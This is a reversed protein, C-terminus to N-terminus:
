WMLSMKNLSRNFERNAERVDLAKPSSINVTLSKNNNLPAQTAASMSQANPVAANALRNSMESIHSISNQLGEALGEGTFQGLEMMVKSPSGIQLAEKIRNKINNAIEKAKNYVRSAANSIGDRLGNIINAGTKALDIGKFWNMVKNWIDKIDQVGNNWQKKIRQMTNKIVTVFEEWDSKFKAKIKGVISKIIAALEAFDKKAKAKIKDWNKYLLVGIAILAAIAAIIALIPFTSAIMSAALALNQATLLALIPLLAIIVGTIIGIAVMVATIGAALEPNKTVWDAIKGIFEAVMTLLPALSKNMEQLALNLRVQPDENIREQQKIMEENNKVLDGTGKNAGALADTIKEGQEEWLTGFLRVGIKNRLVDDEVKGLQTAVEGFAIKGAEGGEAVAAGWTELQKASINTGQILDATTKDIGGGFEALLIRGEKVGDLLVDINWSKTEVGARFIGQIEQANYGARKLQSGYEAMIDLQDPPFGAKLLANTMNIADQQTIGIAEAFENSEQILETFDIDAYTQTITAASEIIRQNQEDTLDANLAFQKRVGELATEGEVGYAKITGVIEKVKAISEEPVDFSLDIKTELAAGELAKSVIAGVGAGAVAGAIGNAIGAGMDKFSLKAKDGTEEAQRQFHELRGETAIIERQFARFQDEGIEGREFQAQVQSQVSKLQNLKNSTTEIQRNLLTQRQALLEANEPNFKLLRQVESLESQISRSEQNVDRLARNLGTTDGGIEVTIGKLRDAL